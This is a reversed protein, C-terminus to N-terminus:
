TEWKKRGLPKAKISLADAVLYHFPEPESTNRLWIRKGSRTTMETTVRQQVSLLERITNWQLYVGNMHLLTQISNVVHHALVSIFLRGKICEDKQHFNPRLGLYSKMSRFSDEVDTLSVYLDWIEQETLDTRSTRLYYSGSFREDMKQLNNIKWSIDTVIGNHEKISVDYLYAIRAHKQKLRGIRELVKSYRKTGRKKHLSEKAYKLDAEFRESFRSRMSSEKSKKLASKCFLVAEDKQRLLRAEVSGQQSHRITVFGDEPAKEVPKNRAVVIYDHGLSKLLRLNEESSIGADMIFTKSSSNGLKKLIAKLTKPEGVNGEFIHSQKPFGREDLVLGLTVLPQDNRKEKSRGYKKIASTTSSEFYTNTLDYLIIKEKLSFLDRERRSLDHEIADQNEILLDSIRYLINHSTEDLNLNLLEDIASLNHAWKYTAFESAPYIMRGIVLLRAIKIQKDTFNLKELIETFGIKKLMEDAVYEGGITRLNSNKLSNVDIEEFEPHDNEEDKQQNLKKHILLNAYHQALTELEPETELISKQGNIIEEIRNALLKWQEKPITLKGLDLLVRQRPGKDTRYSEVLLHYIFQKQYGKNSKKTERIFM